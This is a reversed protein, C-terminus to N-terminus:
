CMFILELHLRSSIENLLCDEPALEGSGRGVITRELPLARASQRSPHSDAPSTLKPAENPQDHPKIRAAPEPSALLSASFRRAM